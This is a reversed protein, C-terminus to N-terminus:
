LLAVLEDFEKDTRQEYKSSGWALLKEWDRQLDAFNAIRIGSYKDAKAEKLLHLMTEIWKIGKDKARVMNWAARRNQASQKLPYGLVNAWLDFAENISENGYREEALDKEPPLAMTNISNQELRKNTNTKIKNPGKKGPQNKVLSAKEREPKEHLFVDNGKLQGNEDRHREWTIYGAEVLERVGSAISDVGDNFQTALGGISYEWDDSVSQMFCIIGKAKASLNTDKLWSNCVQTFNSKIKHVRGM